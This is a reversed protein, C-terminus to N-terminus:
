QTFREPYVVLEVRRNRQKGQPTANSVVPHNSGHGTVFVQASPIRLQGVLIQYVAVARAVSLEHNSHYPGGAIPDTDTHGEVGIIQQPYTRIVEAAVMQIFQPADRRLQASTGDFLRHCPLEVRIVDGDRRVQVDPVNVAPLTQLLSNNPTIVVGGRRQLSANLAQIKSENAVKEERASALQTTVSGLQERMAKLQDDLVRNRQQAQALLSQLEQNDRDLSAARDQMEQRQRSVAVQQDQLKQVQGKLVMANDACGALCAVLAVALPRLAVWRM